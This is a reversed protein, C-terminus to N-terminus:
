QTTHRRSIRNKRQSIKESAEDCNLLKEFYKARERFNESDTLALKGDEKRFCLNQPTYTRIRGSFDKNFEKM